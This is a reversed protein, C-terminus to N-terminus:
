EESVRRDRCKAFQSLQRRNGSLEQRLHKGQRSLDFAFSSHSLTQLVILSSTIMRPFTSATLGLFPIRAAVSSGTASTAGSPDRQDEGYSSAVRRFWKGFAPRM